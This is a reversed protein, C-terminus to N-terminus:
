ASVKDIKKFRLAIQQCAKEFGLENIMKDFVAAVVDVGNVLWDKSEYKYIDYLRSYYYNWM